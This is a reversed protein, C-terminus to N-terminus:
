LVIREDRGQLLSVRVADRGKELEFSTQCFPFGWFENISGKFNRGMNYLTMKGLPDDFRYRATRYITIFDRLDELHLYFGLLVGMVTVHDGDYNEIKEETEFTEDLLHGRVAQHDHYSHGDMILENNETIHEYPIPALKSEPHFSKLEILYNKNSLVMLDCTKGDKQRGGPEYIIHCDPNTTRIFNMVKLEFVLNEV